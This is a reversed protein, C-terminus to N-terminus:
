EWTRMGRKRKTVENKPPWVSFVFCRVPSLLMSPQYQDHEATANQTLRLTQLPIICHVGRLALNQRSSKSHPIAQVTCLIVGHSLLGLGFPRLLIPMSDFRIVLAPWMGQREICDMSKYSTVEKIKFTTCFTKITRPLCSLVTM